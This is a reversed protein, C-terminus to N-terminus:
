LDKCVIGQINRSALYLCNGKIHVEGSLGGPFHITECLEWTTFDYVKIEGCPHSVTYLRNKYSGAISFMKKHVNRIIKVIMLDDLNRIILKKDQSATIIKNDIIFVSKLNQKGSEIDHMVEMNETNIVLLHGTVNGAYIHDGHLIFNWISSDTINYVNQELKNKKDIKYFSGNRISVYVYNEDTQLDCIDSSLDMGLSLVENRVLTKKNIIHLDCFDRCYIFSEDVVLSRAKGAKEFLALEGTIRSSKKNLKFVSNGCLVFVYNKDVFFSTVFEDSKFVEKFAIDM